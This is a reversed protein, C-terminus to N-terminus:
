APVVTLTHVHAPDQRGAVDLAIRLRWEIDIWRGRYTVPGAAPVVFRFTTTLPVGPQLMGGAAQEALAVGTDTGPKLLGSPVLVAGDAPRVRSAEWFAECRIGRCDAPADATAAVSVFVESGVPIPGAPQVLVDFTCRM